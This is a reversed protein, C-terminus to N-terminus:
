RWVEQMNCGYPKQKLFIELLSWASRYQSLALVPNCRNGASISTQIYYWIEDLQKFDQEKVAEECQTLELSLFAEEFKRQLISTKMFNKEVFNTQAPAISYNLQWYGDPLDSIECEGTGCTLGIDNSNFINLSSPTFVKTALPFSPCSIQLTPSVITFGSPYVSIDAVGLTQVNHTDLVLIDLVPSTAM